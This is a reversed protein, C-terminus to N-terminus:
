LYKLSCSNVQSLIRWFFRLGSSAIFMPASPNFVPSL